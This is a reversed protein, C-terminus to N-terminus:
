RHMNILDLKLGSKISLVKVDYDKLINKKLQKLKISTGYNVMLTREYSIVYIHPQRPCSM